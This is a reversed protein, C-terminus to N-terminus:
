QLMATKLYPTNDFVTEDEKRILTLKGDPRYFVPYYKRNFDVEFDYGLDISTLIDEAYGYANCFRNSSASSSGGTLCSISDMEFISPKYENANFVINLNQKFMVLAMITAMGIFPIALFIIAKIVKLNEIRKSLDTNQKNIGM